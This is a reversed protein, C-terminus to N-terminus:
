QQTQVQQGRWNISNLIGESYGALKSMDKLDGEFYVKLLVEQYNNLIHWDGPLPVLWSLEKDYEVKLAHLHDYTKGDGVVGLYKIKSGVELKEQLLALTNLITDKNDAYEDIIDL